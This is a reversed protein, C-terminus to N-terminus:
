MWKSASAAGSAMASQRHRWRGRARRRREPRGRGRAGGAEALRHAVARGIGSAAGTVLAVEGPWSARRRCCAQAQVAGDALVRRRLDRSRHAALLWRSGGHDVARRHRAPLAGRRRLRSLTPAPPSSASAPCSHRRAARSRADRDRIRRPAAVYARYRDEFAADSKSTSADDPAPAGTAMAQHPGPPGPCAPGASPSTAALDRPSAFARAEASDDVQLVMHQRRSVAGRLAPALLDAASRAGAGFRRRQGVSFVRRRDATEALAEAARAIM